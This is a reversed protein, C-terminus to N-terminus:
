STGKLQAQMRSQMIIRAQTKLYLRGTARGWVISTMRGKERPQAWGAFIRLIIAYHLSVQSINLGCCQLLAVHQPVSPLQRPESFRPAVGVILLCFSSSYERQERISEETCQSVCSCM